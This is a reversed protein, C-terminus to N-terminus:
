EAKADKAGCTSMLTNQNRCFALASSYYYFAELQSTVKM